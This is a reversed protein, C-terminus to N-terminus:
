RLAALARKADGALPHQPDQKVFTEFGSIARAKDGLAAQALAGGFRAEAALPSRPHAEVFADFAKAAEALKGADALDQASQLEQREARYAPDQERDGKWYPKLESETAEAGRIGATVTQSAAVQTSQRPAVSRLKAWLEGLMSKLGASGSPAPDAGMVATAALVFVMVTTTRILSRAQM